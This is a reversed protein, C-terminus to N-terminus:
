LKIAKVIKQPLPWKHIYRNWNLRRHGHHSALHITRSIVVEETDESDLARRIRWPKDMVHRPMWSGKFAFVHWVEAINKEYYAGFGDGTYVIIEVGLPPNSQGPRMWVAIHGFDLTRIWGKGKPSWRM